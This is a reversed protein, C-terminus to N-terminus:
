TPPAHGVGPGFGRGDLAVMLGPCDVSGRYRLLRLCFRRHWGRLLAHHQGDIECAPKWLFSGYAFIWLDRGKPHSALVASRREDHDQDTLPEFGPPPGPDAVPR